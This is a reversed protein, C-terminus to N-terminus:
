RGSQFSMAVTIWVKVPVGKKTAPQFTWQQYAKVVAEDLMPHASKTVKIDLVRGTEDVLVNLRVTGELKRVRAADPYKAYIKNIPKPPIVDPGLPVLQGRIVEPPKPKPPEVVPAPKPIEALTGRFTVRKDQAVVATGSYDQYGEKKLTINYNGPRRYLTKPTVGLVRNGIVIFAGGPDSDVILTGNVAAKSMTFPPLAPNPNEATLEVEEELDQYGKLQLKVVHTGFPLQPVEVPTVGKEEGGVLVTAGSPESTIMLNGTTVPEVPLPQAAQPTTSPQVTTQKGPQPAPSPSDEAPKRFFLIGGGVLIIFVFVAIAAYFYRQMAPPKAAPSVTPKSGIPQTLPHVPGAAPQPPPIRPPEPMQRIETAASLPHITAPAQLSDQRPPEPPKPPTVFVTAVPSSEAAPPHFTGIVTPPVSDIKGPRRGNGGSQELPPTKLLQTPASVPPPEILQLEAEEKESVIPSTDSAAMAADSRDTPAMTAFDDQQDMELFNGSAPVFDAPLEHDNERSVFTAQEEVPPEVSEGFPVRLLETKPSEMEIPPELEEVAPSQAEAEQVVAAPLSQEKEEPLALEQLEEEAAHEVITVPEREQEAATLPEEVGEDFLAQSEDFLPPPPLPPAPQASEELIQSADIMLTPSAGEAADAIYTKEFKGTSDNLASEFGFPYYTQDSAPLISHLAELMERASRFRQNPSKALAIGFFSSWDDKSIASRNLDAPVAPVDRAIMMITNAASTGPFPLQGSLLHYIVVGFSFLDSAASVREGLAQEPSIYYPISLLKKTQAAAIEDLGAIGFDTIKVHFDPTMLINTSKLDQHIVGKKHAFDLADGTQQLVNLMEARKFQHKQRLLSELDHGDVYEMTIYPIKKEESLDYIICINPHNLATSTRVVRYIKEFVEAFTTTEELAYLKIVKIAVIRRIVPDLSKYVSGIPGEGIKEIIEFRGITNKKEPM